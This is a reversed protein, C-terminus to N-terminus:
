SQSIEVKINKTTLNIRSSLQLVEIGVVQNQENFDLVIGPYVEESEIIKSEDLRLYLADAEEDIHVKM